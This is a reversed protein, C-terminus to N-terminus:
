GAAPASFYANRLPFSSSVTYFGLNEPRRRAFISFKVNKRLLNLFDWFDRLLNFGPPCGGVGLPPEYEPGSWFRPNRSFLGWVGNKKAGAAGRYTGLIPLVGEAGGPLPPNSM